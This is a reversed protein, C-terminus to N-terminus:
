DGRGRPIVFGVDVYGHGHVNSMENIPIGSVRVEVDPGHVADFGRLFIQLAEGEGGHRRVHLGPVLRLLDDASRRATAAITGADVARETATHPIVPALSEIVVVEGPAM